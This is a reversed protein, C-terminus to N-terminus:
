CRLPASGCTRRRESSTRAAALAMELGSSRVAKAADTTSGTRAIIGGGQEVEATLAVV